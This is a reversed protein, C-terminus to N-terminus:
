IFNIIEGENKYGWCPLISYLYMNIVEVEM